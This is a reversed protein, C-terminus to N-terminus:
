ALKLNYFIKCLLRSCIILSIDGTETIIDIFFKVNRQGSILIIKFYYQLLSQYIPILLKKKKIYYTYCLLM